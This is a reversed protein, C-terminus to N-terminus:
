LSVARPPRARFTMSHQVPKCVEEGSLIMRINKRARDHAQMAEGDRNTRQVDFSGPLRWKQSEGDFGFDNGTLRLADRFVQHLNM